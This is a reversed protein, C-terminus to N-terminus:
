APNAKGFKGSKKGSKERCRGFFSEFVASGYPSWSAWGGGSVAGLVWRVQLLQLDLRARSEAMGYFSASALHRDSRQKNIAKKASSKPSSLRRGSNRWQPSRLRTWRTRAWTVGSPPYMSRTNMEAETFKSATKPRASRMASTHVEIKRDLVPIASDPRVVRSPVLAFTVMM